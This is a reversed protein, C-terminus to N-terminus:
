PQLTRIFLLWAVCACTMVSCACSLSMHSVCARAMVSYAFSLSMTTVCARKMVFCAWSFSMSAVCAPTMVSCACSLSMHAPCTRSMVPTPSCSEVKIAATGDGPTLTATASDRIRSRPLTPSHHSRQSVFNFALLVLVIITELDRM